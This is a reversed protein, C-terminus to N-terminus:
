PSGDRRSSWLGVVLGLGFFFSLIGLPCWKGTQTKTQHSVNLVELLRSFGEEFTQGLHQFGHKLTKWDSYDSNGGIYYLHQAPATEIAEIIHTDNPNHSVGIVVVTSATSIARNWKNRIAQMKVPAYVNEKLPSIQSMVPYHEEGSMKEMLENELGIPALHVIGREYRASTLM